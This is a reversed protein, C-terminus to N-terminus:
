CTCLNIMQSAVTNIFSFNDPKTIFEIGSNNFLAKDNPNRSSTFVVIPVDKLGSDSKIRRFTEKGDLYPMNIDLVILCPLKSQNNKITSLYDLAKLGNEAFVVEVDPNVEKLAESLFERDDADDEVYLITKHISEM